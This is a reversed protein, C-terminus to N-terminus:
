LQLLHPSGIAGACLVIESGALVQIAQGRQLYNVGVATTGRFVIRTVTAGSKVTLNTRARSPHLYATATSCRENNKLTAPFYGCGAIDAGNLDPNFHIGSDQCAQLFIETLENRQSQDDVSM